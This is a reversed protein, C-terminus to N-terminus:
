RSSEDFIRLASPQSGVTSNEWPRAAVTRHYASLRAQHSGSRSRAGTTSPVQFPGLGLGPWPVHATGEPYEDGASVTLQTPVDAVHQLTAHGGASQSRPTGPADVDVEERGIDVGEVDDVPRRHGLREVPETGLHHDM